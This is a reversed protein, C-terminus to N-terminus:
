SIDFCIISSQQLGYSADSPGEVTWVYTDYVPGNGLAEQFFTPPGGKFITLATQGSIVPDGDNCKLSVDLSNSPNIEKDFFVPIYRIQHQDM